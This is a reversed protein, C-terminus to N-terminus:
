QNRWQHLGMEGPSQEILKESDRSIESSLESVKIPLRPKGDVGWAERVMDVQHQSWMITEGNPKFVILSTDKAADSASEAVFKAALSHFIGLQLAANRRHEHFNLIASAVWGGSGITWYGEIDHYYLEGGPDCVSFVHAKSEDDYGFVLLKVNLSTEELPLHLNDAKIQHQEKYARQALLAVDRLKNSCTRLDESIKQVIPVIPAVEGAYMLGWNRNLRYATLAARDSSPCGVSLQSDCTAVISKGRDCIAAICVTV